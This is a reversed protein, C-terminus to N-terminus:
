YFDRKSLVVFYKNGNILNASLNGICGYDLHRNSFIVVKICKKLEIFDWLYKFVFSNIIKLPLKMLESSNQKNSIIRMPTDWNIDETLIGNVITNKM